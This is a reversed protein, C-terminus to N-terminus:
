AVADEEMTFVVEPIELIAWQIPAQRQDFATNKKWDEFQKMNEFPGIFECGGQLTGRIGILGNNRPKDSMM